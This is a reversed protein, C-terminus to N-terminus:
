NKIKIKLTDSKEKMMKFIQSDSDLSLLRLFGNLFVVIKDDTKNKTLPAIIRLLITAGGVILLIYNGIQILDTM